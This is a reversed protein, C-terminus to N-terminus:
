GVFVYFFTSSFTVQFRLFFSFFQPQRFKFVYFVYSSFTVQFRQRFTFFRAVFVYFFVCFRFRLFVGQVNEHFVLIMAIHWVQPFRKTADLIQKDMADGYLVANRLENYDKPTLDAKAAEEISLFWHQIVERYGMWTENTPRLRARAESSGVFAAEDEFVHFAKTLVAEHEAETLPSEYFLTTTKLGAPVLLQSAKAGADRTAIDALTPM